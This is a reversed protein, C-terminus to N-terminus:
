LKFGYRDTLQLREAEQLYYDERSRMVKAEIELKDGYGCLHLVGHIIVRLLEIAHGSQYYTANRHVEEVCIFIDGKIIGKGSNDFTIVDTIYQHGLYQKNIELIREGSVFIICIEGLKKKEEVGIEEVLCNLGKPL